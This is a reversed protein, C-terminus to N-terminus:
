SWAVDTKVVKAPVGAVAARAPVDKTVVSGAAVIAGDGIQVGKLITARQGIWVHDGVRIAAAGRGGELVHQDSDIFQVDWSIACDAGIEIAVDCHLETRRGLYTREGISVTAGEARLYFATGPFLRVRSGLRLRASRHKQRILPRKDVRVDGAAQVAPHLGLMRGRLFGLTKSPRRM